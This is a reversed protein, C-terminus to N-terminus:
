KQRWLVGLLAPNWGFRDYVEKGALDVSWSGDLGSLAAYPAEPDDTSSDLTDHTFFVVKRDPALSYSTIKRGEVAQVPCSIEVTNLDYTCLQNTLAIASHRLFIIRSQGPLWALDTLYDNPYAQPIADACHSAGTALDLWCPLNNVEPNTGSLYLIQKGDAQWELSAMRIGGGAEINRGPVNYILLHTDHFAVQGDAVPMPPESSQLVALVNEVPSWAFAVDYRGDDANTLQFSIGTSLDDIWVPTEPSSWDQRLVYRHDFSVVQPDISLFWNKEGPNGYLFVPLPVNGSSIDALYRLADPDFQKEEIAGNALRYIILTNPLYVLGLKMGSPGSPTDPLWFYDDAGEPITLIYTENNATNVFALDCQEPQGCLNILAVDEGSPAALWAPTQDASTKWLTPKPTSPTKSELIATPTMTASVLQVNKKSETLTPLLPTPTPSPLLGPQVCASLGITSLLIFLLLWSWLIRLQNM